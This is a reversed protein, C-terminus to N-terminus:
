PGSALRHAARTTEPLRYKPACALVYEIATALSLKHGISVYVPTTGARTRLAAGVVEGKHVLPQWSGRALPLPEHEGVLLSKAVGISPIDTLVGLHCALGFRRPHALGQGDCLLLDPMVGLKDLADLLVPIERFSLLGPIYPFSAPRRTVAQDATKLDPFSLVAVAARVLAGEGAPGVDLGAVYYVVGLRDEVVVRRRLTNQVAIAEAPTHPWAQPVVPHVPSMPQHIMQRMIRAQDTHAVPM